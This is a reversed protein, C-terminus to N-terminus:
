VRERCSARGIQSELSWPLIYSDAPLASLPGLGKLGPCLYDAATSPQFSAYFRALPSTEYTCSFSALLASATMAYPNWGQPHLSFGNDWTVLEVPVLFPHMGVTTGSLLSESLNDAQRSDSSIGSPIRILEFGVHNMLDRLFQKSAARFM